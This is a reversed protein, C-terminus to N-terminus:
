RFLRALVTAPLLTPAGFRALRVPHRPVRVLPGLIDDSLEDYWSAPRRFLRRWAEGDPGLGRATEEVSRHLVGAGGGDLPHACDVEPLRWVLGHEELGLERLFKSGAAMPHIAACHDHLLGPLIGE